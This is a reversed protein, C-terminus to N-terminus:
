KSTSSGIGPCFKTQREKTVGQLITGYHESQLNCSFWTYFKLLNLRVAEYFGKNKNQIEIYSNYLTKFMSGGKEIFELIKIGTKM